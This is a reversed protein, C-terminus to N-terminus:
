FLRTRAPFLGNPWALLFTVLLALAIGEAALSSAYAEAFTLVVGLILSALATGIINGLGGVVCAAFAYILYRFGAYPQVGTAMTASIGAVAAVAGSIGFTLSLLRGVPVRFLLAREMDSALARLSLGSRTRVLWYQLVAVTLLLVIPLLLERWYLQLGLIPVATETFAISRLSTGFTIALTAQMIVSVGVAAIMTMSAPGVRRIPRYVHREIVVAVLATAAVAALAGLPYGILRGLVIFLYGALAMRDAHNFDILGVVGYTLSFGLAVLAILVGFLLGYVVLEFM